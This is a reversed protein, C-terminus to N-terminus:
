VDVLLVVATDARIFSSLAKQPGAVTIRDPPMMCPPMSGYVNRHSLLSASHRARTPGTSHKAGLGEFRHCSRRIFFM